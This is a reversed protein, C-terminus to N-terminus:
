LNAGMRRVEAWAYGGKSPESKSWLCGGEKCARVKAASPRRRMQGLEMWTGMRPRMRGEGQQGQNRVAGLKRGGPGWGRCHGVKGESTRVEDGRCQGTMKEQQQRGLSCLLMGTRSRARSEHSRQHGRAHM